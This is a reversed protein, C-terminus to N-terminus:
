FGDARRLARRPGFLVGPALERPGYQRRFYLRFGLRPASTGGHMRVGVGSAFLMRGGEFYSISAPREWDLGRLNRNALLGREPSNLDAEDLALSLIPVGSIVEVAPVAATSPLASPSWRVALRWLPFLDARELQLMLAFFAITAAVLVWSPIRRPSTM